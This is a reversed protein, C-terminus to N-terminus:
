PSASDHDGGAITSRHSSVPLLLGRAARFIRDVSEVTSQLHMTTLEGARAADGKAMAEVMGAHEHQARKRLSEDLKTVLRVYPESQERLTDALDIFRPRSATAAITGHFELHYDFWEDGSARRMQEELKALRKVVDPTVVEAARSALYSETITRLEYIEILDELSPHHVRATRGGEKTLLGRAVLHAIAERVPTRSVGLREAVEVERM